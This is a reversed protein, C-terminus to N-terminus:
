PSATNLKVELTPSGMEAFWKRDEHVLDIVLAGARPDDPRGLALDIMAAPELDRDIPQGRLEHEGGAEPRWHAGLRVGPPAASRFPIAKGSRNTVRVVVHDAEVELLEFDARYFYPVYHGTAWRRFRDPEHTVGRDDLWAAYQDILQPLDSIGLWEVFGRSRHFEQRAREPAGGDLLVALAAVLGSREVGAKCHLLLPRPATDLTDILAALDEPSPLTEGSLRITRHFVGSKEVFKREARWWNADEKTRRLNLISQIGHDHTWAELDAHTPQASRYVGPLVLRLNRHLLLRELGAPTFWLLAIIPPTVGIWLGRHLLFRLWRTPM